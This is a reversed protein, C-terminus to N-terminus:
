LISWDLSDDSFPVRNIGLPLFIRSPTPVPEIAASAAIQEMDVVFSSCVLGANMARENRSPRSANCRESLM